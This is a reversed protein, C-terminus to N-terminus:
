IMIRTKVRKKRSIDRTNDENVKFEFQEEFTEYEGILLSETSDKDTKRRLVTVCEIHTTQPFMDVPQIEELTYADSLEKVDRALTAPNCSVYVIRKPNIQKMAQITDKTCGKRPPDVIIVDAKIKSRILAKAGQLADMNLFEINDIHNNIANKKADKIADAVIEIGYVKKVKDAMLLGITGTGCYLDIAIDNKSLNAYEIAKGYLLPTTYPNIQFFSKAHIMFTKGMLQEEIYPKGFLLHEKGDLIVNDNRQNHILTISQIEPHNKCLLQVLKEQNKLPYSRSVLCVMVEGNSHAHKVLVHRIDKSIELKQFLKKCTSIIANSLDSQIKCIDYEVIDNSRSRYFGMKLSGDKYQAPVQVKNRYAEQKQSTLIPLPTIDMHANQKFCDKVIEEKLQKQAEYDMHQLQCGGCRPYVDCMPKVRHKSTEKIEIIRGYGYSKKLATIGIEAVEGKILGPVFVVFDDIRVVGFGDINYGICETIFTDNKKM